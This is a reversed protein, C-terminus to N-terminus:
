RYMQDIEISENKKSLLYQNEPGKNVFRDSTISVILYDVKSKAEEFYLIHGFHIIDFVGHVM